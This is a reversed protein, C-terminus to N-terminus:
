SRKIIHRSHCNAVLYLHVGYKLAVTNNSICKLKSDDNVITVTTYSPDLIIDDDTTTLNLLYM